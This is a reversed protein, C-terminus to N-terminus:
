DFHDSRLFFIFEFLSKEFILFNSGFGKFGPTSMPRFVGFGSPNQIVGFARRSIEFKSSVRRPPGLGELAHIWQFKASQDVVLVVLLHVHGEPVEHQVNPHMDIVELDDALHLDRRDGIEIELLYLM